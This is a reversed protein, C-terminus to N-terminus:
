TRTLRLSDATGILQRLQNGAKVAENVLHWGDLLYEGSQRRFKKTQLKKWNKVHQNHVSTLEEM